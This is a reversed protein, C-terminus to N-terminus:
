AFSGQILTLISNPFIGLLLVLILCIVIACITFGESKIAAAGAAPENFFMLQVIRFYFFATAASALVALVVLWASGGMIGARFVEFKGIFGATLPIGAFSFLFITMSFALLPSRKALGAWSQLNTAEGLINGNQDKERLLTVIAFAGITAIAYALLYFIVASVTVVYTEPTMTTLQIVSFAILVFGAHAISSYALLRKINQQILGGVTGIVITAVIVILMFVQLNAAVGGAIYVYVRILALFAAAKTGAAMFGTIPTPAGQYVDPTWAHFPAAGVKFLLGITVLVAGITLLQTAIGPTLAVTVIESFGIAGTAGYVFAAGMLYIASSFAGLLFYKLAAEQSLLRRRRATACLVYLPLSLVELAIFLSLLDFASVFAMMGGTAFLTLPFIESQEYRAVTYTHEQRSGPTTAASAAFAGERMESRDAIVIVSLFAALVIIAQGLLTFADEVFSIGTPTKGMTQVIALPTTNIGAESQTVSWRWILSIFASLLVLISFGVQWSRRFKRPIFAEFITALVAGSFVVLLPVLPGWIIQTLNM